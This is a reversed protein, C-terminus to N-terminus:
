NLAKSPPGHPWVTVVKWRVGGYEFTTSERGETERAIIKLDGEVCELAQALAGAPSSAEFVGCDEATDTEPNSVIRYHM